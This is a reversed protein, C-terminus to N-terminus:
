SLANILVAHQTTGLGGVRRNDPIGLAALTNSGRVPGYAPLAGLLQTLTTEAIVPDPKARQPVPALPTQGSTIEDLLARRARRAAGAKHLAAARQELSLVPLAM